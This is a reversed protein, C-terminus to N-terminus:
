IKGASNFTPVSSSRVLSTGAGPRVLSQVQTTLADLKLRLDAVESQCQVVDSKTIDSKTQQLTTNIYRQNSQAERRGDAGLKFIDALSPNAIDPIDEAICKKFRDETQPMAANAGLSVDVSNAPAINEKDAPREEPSREKRLASKAPSRSKDDARKNAGSSGTTGENQM